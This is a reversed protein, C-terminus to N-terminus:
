FLKSFHEHVILWKDKEKKLAITARSSSSFSRGEFTYDNVLIGKYDILFTVLAFDGYLSVKFEKIKYDFDGVIAFNLEEHAIVEQGELRRYPPFDKFKTLRSDILYLSALTSFDKVKAAELKRIIVERVQEEEQM